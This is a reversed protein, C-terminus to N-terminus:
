SGSRRGGAQRKRHAPQRRDRGRATPTRGRDGTPLHRWRSRRRATSGSRRTPCTDSWSVGGLFPRGAAPQDGIVPGGSGTGASIEAIFAAELAALVQSRPSPHWPPRPSRVASRPAAQAPGPVSRRVGTFDWKPCRALLGLVPGIRTGTAAHRPFRFEALSPMGLMPTRLHALLPLLGREVDEAM